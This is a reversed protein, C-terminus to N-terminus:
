SSAHGREDGRDYLTCSYSRVVVEDTVPTKKKWSNMGKVDDQFYGCEPRIAFGPVRKWDKTPKSARVTTLHLADESKLDSTFPPQVVNAHHTTYKSIATM